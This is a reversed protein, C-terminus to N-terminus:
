ATTIDPAQQTTPAMPNPPAEPINTTMNMGEVFFLQFIPSVKNDVTM